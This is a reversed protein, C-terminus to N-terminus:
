IRSLGRFNVRALIRRLISEWHEEQCSILPIARQMWSTQRRHVTIAGPLLCNDVLINLYHDITGVLSNSKALTIMHAVIEAHLVSM